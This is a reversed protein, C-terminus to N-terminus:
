GFIKIHILIALCPLMYITAWYYTDYAGRQNLANYIRLQLITFFMTAHPSKKPRLKKMWERGFTLTLLSAPYLKQLSLMVCCEGNGNNNKTSWCSLWLLFISRLFLFFYFIDIVFIWVTNWLFFWFLSVKTHLNWWFLYSFGEFPFRTSFPFDFASIQRELWPFDSLFNLWHAVLWKRNQNTQVCVTRYSKVFM